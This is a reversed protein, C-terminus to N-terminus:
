DNVVLLKLIPSNYIDVLPFDEGPVEFKGDGDDDFLVAYYAENEVMEKPLDISVNNHIGESLLESKAFVSHPVDERETFVVVYGPEDFSVTDVIIKKGPSVKSVTFFINGPALKVGKREIVLEKAEDEPTNIKEESLENVVQEETIIEDGQRSDFLILYLLFVGFFIFAILVFVSLRKLVLLM